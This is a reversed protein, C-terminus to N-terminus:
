ARPYLHHGFHRYWIAHVFSNGPGGLQVAADPSGSPIDIVVGPYLDELRVAPQVQIDILTHYRENQCWQWKWRCLGVHRHRTADQQFRLAVTAARGVAQTRALALQAALYRAAGRARARDLGVTVQPVHLAWSSPRAPRAHVRHRRVHLGARGASQADQRRDAPTSPRGRVRLSVVRTVGAREASGAVTILPKLKLFSKEGIGKVNMLDEIKKFGGNKQRYEIIRDATSKGIGALNRAASSHGYQPQARGTGIADRSGCQPRREGASRADGREARAGAADRVTNPDHDHDAEQGCRAPAAEPGRPVTRFWTTTSSRADVQWM